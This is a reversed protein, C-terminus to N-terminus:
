KNELAQNLNLLKANEKQLQMIQEKLADNETQSSGQNELIEKKEEELRKVWDKYQNNLAQMKNLQNKLSSIEQSQSAVEQKLDENKGTFQADDTVSEKATTGFPPFEQAPDSPGVQDKNPTLMSESWNVTSKKTAQPDPQTKVLNKAALKKTANEQM